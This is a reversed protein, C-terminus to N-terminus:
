HCSGTSAPYVRSHMGFDYLWPWVLLLCSILIRFLNRHTFGRYYVSWALICLTTLLLVPRARHLAAAGASGVSLGDLLVPLWCCSNHLLATIFPSVISLRSLAGRSTPKSPCSEKENGASSSRPSHCCSTMM